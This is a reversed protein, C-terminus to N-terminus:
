FYLLKMLAQSAMIWKGDIWDQHPRLDSHKFEIEEDTDRFYVLYKSGGLVKSIVGVWWGDNYLADIEEFLSFCDVLLTEPPCPRIHLTGFEERLFGSDDDTRLSQYQVLFKDKGVAKVITAAFWAGEFGDDDSSVEVLTGKSFMKQATADSAKVEKTISM